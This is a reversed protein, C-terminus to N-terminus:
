HALFAGFLAGAIFVMADSCARPHARWFDVVRQAWVPLEPLQPM